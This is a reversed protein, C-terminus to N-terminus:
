VGTNQLNNSRTIKSIKDWNRVSDRRLAVRSGKTGVWSVARSPSSSHLWQDAGPWVNVVLPSAKPAHVILPFSNKEANQPHLHAQHTCGPKRKRGPSLPQM